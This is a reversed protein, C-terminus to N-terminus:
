IGLPTAASILGEDWQGRACNKKFRGVFRNHLRDDVPEALGVISESFQNGVGSVECATVRDAGCRVAMMALLGTGTGIDLVHAAQGRAQVAAVARQLGEEYKQNQLSHCVLPCWQVGAAVSCRAVFALSWPGSVGSM